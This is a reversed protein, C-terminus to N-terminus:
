LHSWSCKNRVLAPPARPLLWRVSPLHQLEHRLFSASVAGGGQWRFSIVIHLETKLMSNLKRVIMQHFLPRGLTICYQRIHHTCLLSSSALTLHCHGPPMRPMIGWIIIGCEWWIGASKFAWDTVTHRRMSGILMIRCAFNQYSEGVRLGRM